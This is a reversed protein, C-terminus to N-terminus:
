KRYIISGYQSGYNNVKGLPLPFPREAYTYHKCVNEPPQSQKKGTPQNFDGPKFQCTASVQKVQEKSKKILLYKLFM